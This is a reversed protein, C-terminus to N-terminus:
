FNGKFSSIVFCFPYKNVPQQCGLKFVHPNKKKMNFFIFKLKLNQFFCIGDLLLKWEFIEGSIKLGRSGELTRNLFLSKSNLPMQSPKSLLLLIFAEQSSHWWGLPRPNSCRLEWPSVKEDQSHGSDCQDGVEESFHGLFEYFPLFTNLCIFTLISCAFLLVCPYSSVNVTHQQVTCCIVFLFNRIRESQLYKFFLNTIPKPSKHTGTCLCPNIVEPDWKSTGNKSRCCISDLLCVPLCM